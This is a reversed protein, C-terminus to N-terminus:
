VSSFNSFTISRFTFPTNVNAIDEPQGMRRLPVQAIMPEIVEKPVARMMDTYPIIRFFLKLLHHVQVHLAYEVTGLSGAFM